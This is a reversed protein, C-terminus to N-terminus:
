HPNEDRIQRTHRRECHSLGGALDIGRKLTPGTKVGSRSPPKPRRLRSRWWCSLPSRGNRARPVRGAVPAALHGRPSALAETAAHTRQFRAGDRGDVRRPWRRAAGRIRGPLPERTPALSRGRRRGTARRLAFQPPPLVLEGRGGTGDVRDQASPRCRCRRRDHRRALLLHRRGRDGQSSDLGYLLRVGTAASRRSGGPDGLSRRGPSRGSALGQLSAVRCAGEVDERRPPWGPVAAAEGPHLFVAAASAVGSSRSDGVVITERHHGATLVAFPSDDAAEGRERGWVASRAVSM